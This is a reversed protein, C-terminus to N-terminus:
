WGDGVPPYEVQCVRRPNWVSLNGSLSDCRFPFCKSTQVKNAKSYLEIRCEGENLVDLVPPQGDLQEPVVTLLGRISSFSTYYAQSLDVTDLMTPLLLSQLSLVIWALALQHAPFDKLVGSYRKLRRLSKVLSKKFTDACRLTVSKWTQSINMLSLTGSVSKFFLYIFFCLSSCSLSVLFIVENEWRFASDLTGDTSRLLPDSVPLTQLRSLKLRLTPLHRKFQPLYDVIMLDKPLLFDQFSTLISETLYCNSQYSVLERTGTKFTLNGENDDNPKIQEPTWRLFSEQCSDFQSGKVLCISEKQDLDKLLGSNSSPTVEADGSLSADFRFRTFTCCAFCCTGFTPWLSLTHIVASGRRHTGKFETEWIKWSLVM